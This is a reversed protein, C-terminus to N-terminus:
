RVFCTMGTAGRNGWAFYPVFRLPRDDVTSARLEVMGGLLNPDFAETISSRDLELDVLDDVGLGPHDIGELCYLLPGRAVAARGGVRPVRPDQTLFRVPLGFSLRVEHPGGPLDLRAWRAQWPDLGSATSRAPEPDDVGPEVAEGDLAVEVRDTWSPVRFALRAPPREGAVRITVEGAWPLASDIEIEAGGVNALSSVFQHIRLEDDARSTALTALSAWTRSLNSPCCPIPYWSRRSFGAPALLPNNYHYGTGDLAM